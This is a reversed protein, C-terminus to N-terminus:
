WAIPVSIYGQILTDNDWPLIDVAHQNFRTFDYKVHRIKLHLASNKNFFSNEKVHYNLLFEFNQELSEFGNNAFYDRKQLSFDWQKSVKYKVVIEWANAAEGDDLEQRNYGRAVPTDDDLEIYYFGGYGNLAISFDDKDYVWGIGIQQRVEREICSLTNQRNDMYIYWAIYSHEFSYAKADIRVLFDFWVPYHDPDLHDKDRDLFAEAKAFIHTDKSTNHEVYVGLNVGVAHSTGSPLTGLFGDDHIDQVVFDHVGTTMSITTACLSSVFLLFTLCGKFLKL